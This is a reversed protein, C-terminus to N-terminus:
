KRHDITFVRKPWKLHSFFHLATWRITLIRKPKKNEPANSNKACSSIPDTQNQTYVILHHGNGETAQTQGAYTRAYVRSRM